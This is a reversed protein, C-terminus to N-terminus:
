LEKKAHVKKQHPQTMKNFDIASSGTFKHVHRLRQKAEAHDPNLNLVKHLLREAKDGQRMHWHALALHLMSEEDEPNRRTAENLFAVWPSAPIRLPASANAVVGELEAVMAEGLSGLLAGAQKRGYVGREELDSLVSRCKKSWSIVSEFELTRVMHKLIARCSKLNEPWLEFAALLSESTQALEAKELLFDISQPYKAIDADVAAQSRKGRPQEWQLGLATGINLTSHEWNSPVFMVEGAEQTCQKMEAKKLTENGWHWPSHGLAISSNEKLALTVCGPPCMYWHKRGHLLWLLSSGHNHFSLGSRSAGLSMSVPVGEFHKLFEPLGSWGPTVNLVREAFQTHHGFSVFSGDDRDHVLEMDGVVEMLQRTFLKHADGLLSTLSPFGVAVPVHWFRNLLSPRSWFRSCERGCGGEADTFNTVILPESRPLFFENASSAFKAASVKQINCPETLSSLRHSFDVMWGSEPSTGLELRTEPSTHRSEAAGSPGSAGATLKGSVLVAFLMWARLVDGRARSM